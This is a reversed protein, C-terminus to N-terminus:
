PASSFSSNIQAPDQFFVAEGVRTLFLAQILSANPRVWTGASFRGGAIVIRAGANDECSGTSSFKYLSWPVGDFTITDPSTNGSAKTSCPVVGDLVVFTGQPLRVYPSTRVWTVNGSSADTSQTVITMRRNANQENTSHDILMLAPVNNLIASTRASNLQVVVLNTAAKLSSGATGRLGSALGGALIVIIAIVVLLETLSFGGAQATSIPNRNM